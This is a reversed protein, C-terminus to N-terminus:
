GTSENKLLAVADEETTALVTGCSRCFYEVDRVLADDDYIPNGTDDDIYFDRTIIINHGLIGLERGCYPCRVEAM